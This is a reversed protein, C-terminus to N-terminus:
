ESDPVEVARRGVLGGAVIRVNVEPRSGDELIRESTSIINENESFGVVVVSGRVACIVSVM